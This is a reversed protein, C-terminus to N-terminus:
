PMVEKTQEQLTESLLRAKKKKVSLEFAEKKLTADLEEKLKVLEAKFEAKPVTLWFTGDKTTMTAPVQYEFDAAKVGLSIEGDETNIILEYNDILLDLPKKFDRTSVPAESDDVIYNLEAVDWDSDIVDSTIKLKNALMKAILVKSADYDEANIGLEQLENKSYLVGNYEEYNIEVWNKLSAEWESGVVNKFYEGMSYIIQKNKPKLM